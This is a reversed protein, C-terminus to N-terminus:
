LRPNLEPLASTPHVAPQPVASALSLLSGRAGARPHAPAPDPEESSRSKEQGPCPQAPIAESLWAAECMAVTEATTWGTAMWSRM